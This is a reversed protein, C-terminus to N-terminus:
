RPKRAMGVWSYVSRPRPPQGVDPRGVDPRWALLPVIGPDALDLGSFFLAIEDRTRLQYTVGATQAAAVARRAAAPAFDATPHAITLYSGPPLADLLTAVSQHAEEDEFLMLVSVLM